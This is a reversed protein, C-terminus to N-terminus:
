KEMGYKEVFIDSSRLLRKLLTTANDKYSFANHYKKFCRLQSM